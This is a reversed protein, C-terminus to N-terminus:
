SQIKYKEIHPQLWDQISTFSYAGKIDWSETGHMTKGTSLVYKLVEDHPFIYITNDDRFAIWLDKGMYSKKFYVRSKLQIKYLDSGNAHIAVFDAGNTDDWLRTTCYGYDALVSSIKQFNYNEKQKGNLYKYEHIELKMKKM